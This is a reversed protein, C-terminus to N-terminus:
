VYWPIGVWGMGTAGANTRAGEVRMGLESEWAVRKEGGDRGYASVTM